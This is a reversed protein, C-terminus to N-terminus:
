LQQEQHHQHIKEKVNSYSNFWILSFIGNETDVSAKIQFLRVRGKFIPREHFSTIVGTIRIYDKDQCTEPAPNTKVQYFKTPFIRSLDKLTEIGVDQLQSLSKPVKKTKYLENISSSWSLKSTNSM